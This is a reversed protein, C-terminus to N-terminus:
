IAILSIFVASVPLIWTLMGEEHQAIFIGKSATESPM